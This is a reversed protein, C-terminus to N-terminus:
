KTGYDVAEIHWQGGSWHMAFIFNTPSFGRLLATDGDPYIARGDVQRCAATVVTGTTINATPSVADMVVVRHGEVKTGAQAIRAVDAIVSRCYRCQPESLRRVLSSDYTAYAYNYADWFYRVFAIASAPTPKAAPLAPETVPASPSPPPSTPPPSSPPRTPAPAQDSEGSCATILLCPALLAAAVWRLNWRFM